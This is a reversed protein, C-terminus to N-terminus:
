ILYSRLQQLYKDISRDIKKRKKKFDDSLKRYAARSPLRGRKYRSELLNLSDKISFREAELIDLRKVINEFVRGPEMLNKKFPIIEKQIEDIKSTNKNLINKLNRKAIKKRKADEETQRIELILANKEEYLACFERIESLPIFERKLVPLGYDKKRTKITLVYVSAILSIILIILIPRLLLDFYDITFTFQIIRREEPSVTNSTYVLTTTGDARNIAEPVETIYDVSFCGDIIIKISQQNGLYEYFTSYLDIKISEQFWNISTYDEFPLFYRIKFRYMSNPLMRVRNISLDITVQKSKSNESLIIGVGLIEGIDDSVYIEKANYPVNLIISSKVLLGLNEITLEENVRIIGWPSIFIERNTKKVEMKSIEGYSFSFNIEKLENLNEMFPTLVLGEIQDYLLGIDYRIIWDPEGRELGWGGELDDSTQPLHFITIISGEARYPLIPYVLGSYSIYQKDLLAYSLLNKYQHMFKISKTQQPLLPSEFYIAFMEYEKMIMNLRETFLTNESIGTAEFFILDESHAVPIGVLISNIPNNNFNKISLSDEFIVLGYGSITAKRFMDTIVINEAEELSTALNPYKIDDQRIYNSESPRSIFTVCIISILFFISILASIKRKM